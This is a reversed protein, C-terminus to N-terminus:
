KTRRYRALLTARHEIGPRLDQHFNSALRHLTKLEEDAASLADLLLDLSENIKLLPLIIEKAKRLARLRRPNLESDPAHPDIIRAARSIERILVPAAFSTGFADGNDRSLMTRGETPVTTVFEETRTM